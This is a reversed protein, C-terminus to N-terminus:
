DILMACYWKGLRRRTLGPAGIVGTGNSSFRFSSGTRDNCKKIHMTALMDYSVEILNARTGSLRFGRVRVLCMVEVVQIDKM